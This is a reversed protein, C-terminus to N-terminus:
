KQLIRTLMRRNEKRRYTKRQRILKLMIIRANILEHNTARTKRIILFISKIWHYLMRYKTNILITASISSVRKSRPVLLQDVKSLTKEVMQNVKMFRRVLNLNITLTVRSRIRQNAKTSIQLSYIILRKSLTLQTSTRTLIGVQAFTILFIM